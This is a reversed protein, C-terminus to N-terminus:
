HTGPASFLVICRIRLRWCGRRTVRYLPRARGPVDVYACLVLSTSKRFYHFRFFKPASTPMTKFDGCRRLADRCLVALSLFFLRSLPVRESLCAYCVKARASAHEHARPVFARSVFCPVVPPYKVQHNHRRYHHNSHSQHRQFHLNRTTSKKTSETHRGSVPGKNTERHIHKHPDSATHTHTPPLFKHAIKQQKMQECLILHSHTAVVVVVSDANSKIVSM